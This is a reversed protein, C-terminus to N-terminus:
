CGLYVETTSRRAVYRRTFDEYLVSKPETQDGLAPTDRECRVSRPPRTRHIALALPTTQDRRHVNSTYGRFIYTSHTALDASKHADQAGTFARALSPPESGHRAPEAGLKLRTPATLRFCGGRFKTFTATDIRVRHWEKWVDFCCRARGRGM